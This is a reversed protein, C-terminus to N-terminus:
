WHATENINRWKENGYFKIQMWLEVDVFNRDERMNCAKAGFECKFGDIGPRITHAKTQSNKIEKKKEIQKAFPKM